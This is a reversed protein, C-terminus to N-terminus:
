VFLGEVVEKVVTGDAEGKTEKMVAGMLIGIKAKDTISLEEKKAKAIEVVKERSMTEPLYTEIVALESREISALDPRDGKEFQEISDKRQKAARKFVVLISADDLIEDPKQKKAVLENTAMTILGRVTRLRVEDRAKMAEKLDTRLQEHITM